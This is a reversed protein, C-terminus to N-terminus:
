RNSTLNQYMYFLDMYMLRSTTGASKIIEFQPSIAVTPIHTTITGVSVENIFYAVSTAGANVVFRVTTWTAGSLAVGSDTQTKVSAASTFLQINPQAGSDNYEFYVGNDYNGGTQTGSLGCRIAFTDTGNSLTPAQFVFLLTIAGGGLVIPQASSNPGLSYWAVGTTTTGTALSTVGPHGSDGVLQTIASGTGSVGSRWNLGSSSNGNIFDDSM